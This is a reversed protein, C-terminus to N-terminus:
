NHLRASKGYYWVMAFLLAILSYTCVYFLTRHNATALAFALAIVGDWIVWVRNLRSCNSDPRPQYIKAFSYWLSPVLVLFVAVQWAYSLNKVLRKSWETDGLEVYIVMFTLAFLVARNTKWQSKGRFAHLFPRKM